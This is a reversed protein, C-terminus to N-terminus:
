GEVRSRRISMDEDLILLDASMGVALLSGAGAASGAILTRRTLLTM